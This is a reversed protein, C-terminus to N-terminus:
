EEIGEAKTDSDCDPWAKRLYRVTLTEGILTALLALFTALMMSAAAPVLAPEQRELWISARGFPESVEEEPQDSPYRRKALHLARALLADVGGKSILPVLVFSLDDYARRTAAAASSADVGSGSRRAIANAAITQLNTIALSTM